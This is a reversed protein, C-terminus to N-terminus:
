VDLVAMEQGNRIVKINRFSGNYNPGGSLYLANFATATGPLSYTGPAFVEGIVNVRISKPSELQINAFTRPQASVLDRYILSLKEFLRKEASALTHGGV